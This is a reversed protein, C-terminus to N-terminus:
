SAPNEGEAEPDEEVSEGITFPIKTLVAGDANEVSVSWDGTWAPPITKQSWTRWRKGSVPLEVRAKEEGGYIWVHYIITEEGAGEIVTFLFLHGVDPSFSSGEDVPEREEIGRTIVARTVALASGSGPDDEEQAPAAALIVAAVGTALILRRALKWRM